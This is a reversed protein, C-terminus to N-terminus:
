IPISTHVYPLEGMSGFRVLGSLLLSVILSDQKKIDEDSYPGSVFVWTRAKSGM